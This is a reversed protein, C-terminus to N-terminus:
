GEPSSLEWVTNSMANAVAAATAPGDQGETCAFVRIIVNNRRRADGSCRWEQDVLDTQEATWAYSDATSEAIKPMWTYGDSTRREQDDCEKAMDGASEFATTAAEADPYVAAVELVIHDADQDDSPADDLKRLYFGDWDDGLLAVQGKIGLIECDELDSDDLPSDTEYLDPLDAGVIDEVAAADIIVSETQGGDVPKSAQDSIWQASGEATQTCGTTLAGVCATVAVAVM